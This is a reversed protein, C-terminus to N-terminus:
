TRPLYKSTAYMALDLEDQLLRYNKGLTSSSIDFRRAVEAQSLYPMLEINILAYFITAVWVQPKIVKPKKKQSFDAWMQLSRSIQLPTCIGQFLNLMLEGINKYAENGWPFDNLTKIKYPPLGLQEYIIDQSNLIMEKEFEDITTPNKLYKILKRKKTPEYFAQLPTDQGLFPQPSYLWSMTFLHQGLYISQQDFFDDSDFEEDDLLENIDQLTYKMLYYAKDKLFTEIDQYQEEQFLSHYYEMLDNKLFEDVVLFDFFLEPESALNSLQCFLIDGFELDGSDDENKVIYEKELLLDKLKLKNSFVEEIRYFSYYEPAYNKFFNVTSTGLEKSCNKLFHAFPTLGKELKQHFGFGQFILSFDRDQLADDYNEPPDLAVELYEDIIEKDHNEFLYTFFNKILLEREKNFHAASFDLVNDNKGCCKKYKQGSGCPCPDNRGVKM